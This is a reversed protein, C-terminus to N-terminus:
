AVRPPQEEVVVLHHPAVDSKLRQLVTEQQDAGPTLYVCIADEKSRAGIAHIGYKGLYKGRL